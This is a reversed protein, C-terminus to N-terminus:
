KLQKLVVIKSEGDMIKYLTRLKMLEIIYLVSVSKKAKNINILHLCYPTKCILHIIFIASTVSGAGM